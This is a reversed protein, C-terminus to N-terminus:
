YKWWSIEDAIIKIEPYEEFITTIVIANDSSGHNQHHHEDKNDGNQSNAASPQSTPLPSNLHVVVLCQGETFVCRLSIYLTVFDFHRSIKNVLNKQTFILCTFIGPHFLVCLVNSFHRWSSILGILFSYVHIRTKWIVFCAYWDQYMSIGPTKKQTHPFTYLLFRNM